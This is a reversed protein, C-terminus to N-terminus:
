ALSMLFVLAPFCRLLTFADFERLVSLSHNTFCAAPQIVYRQKGVNKDQELFEPEARSLISFCNLLLASLSTVLRHSM